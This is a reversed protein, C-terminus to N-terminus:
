PTPVLLAARTTVRVFAPRRAKFIECTAIVPALWPSKALILVHPPVKAAPACHWTLTVNVGVAVPDRLADKSNLSSPPPVGCATPRDPVPIAEWDRWHM